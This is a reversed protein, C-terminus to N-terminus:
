FKFARRDGHRLDEPRGDSLKVDSMKAVSDRPTKM